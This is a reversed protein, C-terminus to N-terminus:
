RLCVYRDSLRVRYVIASAVGVQHAVPLVTLAAILVVVPLARGSWSRLARCRLRTRRSTCPSDRLIARSVDVHRAVALHDAARLAARDDRGVDSELATARPASGEQM